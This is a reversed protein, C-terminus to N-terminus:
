ALQSALWKGTTTDLPGALQIQIWQGSDYDFEDAIVHDEEYRINTLSMADYAREQIQDDQRRTIQWLDQTLELQWAPAALAIMKRPLAVSKGIFTVIALWIAMFVAGFVGFLVKSPFEADIKTLTWFWLITFLVGFAKM